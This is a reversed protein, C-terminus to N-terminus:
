ADDREGAAPGLLREVVLVDRWRGDLRGHRLHVGVDRFGCAHALEISARNDAFLKGVLKWHGESEARRCAASLLERGTGQGRARRAVYIMYEGVGAYAPMSAYAVVFTFGTPGEEDESMLALRTEPSRVAEAMEGAEPVETRFTAMRDEIGEGYIAAIAAGDAPTAPRVRM